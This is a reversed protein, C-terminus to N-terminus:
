ADHAPVTAHGQARPARWGFLVLTSGMWRDLRSPRGPDDLRRAFVRRYWSAHVAQGFAMTMTESKVFGARVARRTLERRTYPQEMGYPWWGRLDLYAKWLRYPLCAANPVSIVALGGPRLVDHHARVVRTRMRGRFHEIVGYSAAVDFRAAYDHLGQTLDARAYTARLGLRDFRRRAQSLARDSYDLLTVDAGCRALLVSVDGRGSGLEVTRLGRISGFTSTLRDVIGGWRPHQLERALRADDEAAGPCYQWVRDWVHTGTATPSPPGSADSAAHAPPVM